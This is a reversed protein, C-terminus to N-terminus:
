NSGSLRRQQEAIVQSLRDNVSTIAQSPTAFTGTSTTITGGIGSANTDTVGIGATFQKFFGGGIGSASGKNLFLVVVVLALFATSLPKLKPVYGLAGILVIAIFWYAFNDPGTLDGHVLAFLTGPQSAPGATNRVGAVLLWIGILLLAFPM